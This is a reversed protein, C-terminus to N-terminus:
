NVKMRVAQQLGMRSSILTWLLEVMMLLEGDQGVEQLRLSLLLEMGFYM